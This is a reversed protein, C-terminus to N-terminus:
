EINIVDDNSLDLVFEAQWEEAKKKAVELDDFVLHIDFAYFSEYADVDVYINDLGLEMKDSELVYDDIMSGLENIYEYPRKGDINVTDTLYPLISYGTPKGMKGTYPNFFVAGTSELVQAAEKPINIQNM